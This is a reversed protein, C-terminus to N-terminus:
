RRANHLSAQSVLVSGVNKGKRDYTAKVHTFEHATTAGVCAASPLLLGLFSLIFPM